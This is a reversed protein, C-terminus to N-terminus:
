EDDVELIKLKFGTFHSMKEIDDVLEDLTQRDRFGWFRENSYTSCYSTKNGTVWRIQWWIVVNKNKYDSAVILDKIESKTM